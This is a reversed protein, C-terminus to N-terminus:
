CDVSEQASSLKRLTKCIHYNIKISVYSFGISYTQRNWNFKKLNSRCINQTVVRLNTQHEEKGSFYLIFLNIHNKVMVFYFLYFWRKSLCPPLQQKILLLQIQSDKHISSSELQGEQKSQVNGQSTEGEEENRRSLTHHM